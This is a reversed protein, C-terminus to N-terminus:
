GDRTHEDVVITTDESHLRGSKRRAAGSQFNASQLVELVQDNTLFGLEVLILGILTGKRTSEQLSLATELQTENILGLEIAVQGFLPSPGQAM